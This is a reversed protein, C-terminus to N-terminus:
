LISLLIQRVSSTLIGSYRLYQCFLTLYCNLLTVLRTLGVPDIDRLLMPDVVAHAVEDTESAALCVTCPVRIYEGFDVSDGLRAAATAPVAPAYDVTTGQAEALGVKASGGM